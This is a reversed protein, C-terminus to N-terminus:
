RVRSWLSSLLPEMTRSVLEIRLGSLHGHYAWRRMGDEDAGAAEFAYGGAELEAGDADVDDSWFGLHHGAAGPVPVWPSGPQAQIVEIRPETRSYRFRFRITRDGDPLQVPQEVDVEPGWEHGFLRGLEDLAADLDEVVIGVHYCDAARM